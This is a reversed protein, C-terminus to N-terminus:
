AGGNIFGALTKVVTVIVSIVMGIGCGIAVFLSGTHIKGDLDAKIPNTPDYWCPYSQGTQYRDLDNHVSSPSTSETSYTSAYTQNNATHLVYGMAGRYRTETHNVTYTHKNNGSGRTERTTYHHIYSSYSKTGITCSGQVHTFSSLYDVVSFIGIVFLVLAIFGGVLLGMLLNCGSRVPTM